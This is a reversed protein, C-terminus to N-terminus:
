ARPITIGCVVLNRILKKDYVEVKDATLHAIIENGNRYYLNLYTM